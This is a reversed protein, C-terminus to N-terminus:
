ARKARTHKTPGFLELQLRATLQVVAEAYDTGRSGCVVESLARGRKIDVAEALPLLDILGQELAEMEPRAREVEALAKLPDVEPVRRTLRYAEKDLALLSVKLADRKETDTEQLYAEGLAKL